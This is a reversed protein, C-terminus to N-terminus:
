EVLATPNKAVMRRIDSETFGAALLRETYLSIGEDPYIANPQGLDTSLVVRSAGIAKIQGIAVDWGVKGTAPTTYCHEMYAGLAVLERQEEITYFTSPFDVHTVIVREVKRERAAKVLAFTEEHSIHATALIMNYKRIVDLVEYTEGSVKGNILVNLLPAKVGEANMELQIKAWFPLKANPDAALAELHKQEHEADVTPFWVLRAGARGAMEVAMPNIGGVPSNLTITGVVNCGPKLKRAVAAREATCFYHSKVAFGKMGAAIARDAMELDDLKRPLLDPASHIHLDYSAKLLENM